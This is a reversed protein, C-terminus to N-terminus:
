IRTQPTPQITEEQSILRKMPLKDGDSIGTWWSQNRSRVRVAMARGNQPSCDENLTLAGSFAYGGDSGGACECFM